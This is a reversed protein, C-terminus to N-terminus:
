RIPHGKHYFIPTEARWALAGWGALVFRALADHATAKEFTSAPLVALNWRPLVFSLPTLVLVGSVAAVAVALGLPDM